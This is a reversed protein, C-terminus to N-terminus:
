EKKLAQLFKEFLDKHPAFFVEGQELKAKIGKDMASLADIAAQKNHTKEITTEIIQMDHKRTVDLMIARELRNVFLINCLVIIGCAILIRIIRTYGALATFRLGWLIACMALLRLIGFLWPLIKALLPLTGAQAMIFCRALLFEQEANSLANFWEPNAIIFWNKTGPNTACGIFNNWPNIHLGAKKPAIVEYSQSFGVLEAARAAADVIEQPAQTCYADEVYEVMKASSFNIISMHMIMIFTAVITRKNM